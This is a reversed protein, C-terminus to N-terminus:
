KKLLKTFDVLGMKMVGSLMGIAAKPDGRLAGILHKVAPPVNDQEELMAMVSDMMVDSGAMALIFEAIGEQRQLLVEQGYQPFNFKSSKAHELLHNDPATPDSSYWALSARIKEGLEQEGRLKHEYQIRRQNNVDFPALGEAAKDRIMLTGARCAHRIGLEYFVNPNPYSIDAVVLDSYMLRTLIDTTVTGQAGTQDARAVELTPDAILLAPKILEEYTRKLEDEAIVKNGVHQEGIAMVVFCTKAM